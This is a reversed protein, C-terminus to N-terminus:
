CGGGLLLGEVSYASWFPKKQKWFNKDVSSEIAPDNQPVKTGSEPFCMDMNVAM